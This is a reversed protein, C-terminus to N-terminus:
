SCAPCTGPPCSRGKRRSAWTLHPLFSTHLFPSVPPSPHSACSLLVEVHPVHGQTPAELGKRDGEAVPKSLEVPSPRFQLVIDTAMDSAQVRLGAASLARPRTAWPLQGGQGAETARAGGREEQQAAPGRLVLRWRGLRRRGALRLPGEPPWRRLGRSAGSLHELCRPLHIRADFLLM